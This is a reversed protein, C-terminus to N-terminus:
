YPGIFKGVPGNGYAYPGNIYPGNGLEHPGNCFAYPGNGAAYPGNIYPGATYLANRFDCRGPNFERIKHPFPFAFRSNPLIEPGIEPGIESVIEPPLDLSM